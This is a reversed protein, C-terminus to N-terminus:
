HATRENTGFIIIKSNKATILIVKYGNKLLTKSQTLKQIDEPGNTRVVLDKAPTPWLSKDEINYQAQNYIQYNAKDSYPTGSPPVIRAVNTTQLTKIIPILKTLEHISISKGVKSISKSAVQAM